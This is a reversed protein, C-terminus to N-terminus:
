PYYLSKIKEIYLGIVYSADIDNQTWRRIMMTRRPKKPNKRCNIATDLKELHEEKEKQLLNEKTKTREKKTLM